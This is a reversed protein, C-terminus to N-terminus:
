SLRFIVPSMLYCGEFLGIIFGSHVDPRAGPSPFEIPVSFTHSKGPLVTVSESRWLPLVPPDYFARFALAMAGRIPRDRKNVLVRRLTGPASRDTDFDVSGGILISPEGDETSWWVDGCRRCQLTRVTLGREVTHRLFLLQGRDTECSTCWAPRKSVVEFTPSADGLFDAGESQILAAAHDVIGRQVAAVDQVVRTVDSAWGPETPRGALERISRRVKQLPENQLDVELWALRECGPVVVDNLYRLTELAEPDAARPAALQRTNGDRPGVVLGPDGLLGFMALGDRQDGGSANLAAVIEGLPRGERLGQEVLLESGVEASHSGMGGIVAVATGELFGSGIGVEEPYPSVGASVAGCSQSFVVVAHLDAAQVRQDEALDARFCGEGRLCSPIRLSADLSRAPLLPGLPTVGDDTRGCIIGDPLGVSCERGHLHYVVLQHRRRHLDRMEDMEVADASLDDGHFSNTVVFTSPEAHEDPVLTRYILCALSDPTRGTLVGAHPNDAGPWDGGETLDRGLGVVAVAGAAEAVAQRLRDAPVHRHPRETADALLRGAARGMDGGTSLVVGTRPVLRVPPLAGGSLTLYRDLPRGPLLPFPEGPAWTRAVEILEEPTSCLRTTLATRDSM